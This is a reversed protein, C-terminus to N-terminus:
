LDKSGLGLLRAFTVVDIDFHIGNVTWHIASSSPSFYFSAHSQAIIEINWDYRFGMLEKISFEECAEIVRDCIGMNMNAIHDFTWQLTSIWIFCIGSANTWLRM